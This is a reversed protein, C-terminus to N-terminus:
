EGFPIRHLAHFRGQEDEGCLTLADIVYPRPLLPALHPMLAAHTTTLNTRSLRDTLTIHFRFAEFVYPYGWRLLLANQVPSLRANRRSALELPSLAARLPDLRTVAADALASLARTDGEPTLALFRGLPGLALGDLTIPTMERCLQAFCRALDDPTAGPALRFPPKITGHMGYKRPTATLNHPDDPLGAIEPAATDKGRAVDWGLWAAGFDALPGPPCTHYVAYRSFQM